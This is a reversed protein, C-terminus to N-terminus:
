ADRRRLVIAAGVLAVLVYGCLVGLSTWRGLMSPDRVIHITSGAIEGPLYRSIHSSWSQPLASVIIPIVLVIGVLSAIGGATSRLLAGLAVGLLAILTLFAGAAVVAAFAGPHSLTTGIHQSSLMAQGSLFAVLGTTTMLVATVGAFVAAKAWLVPLRRPVAALTSRIMGTAYEGSMVLVGLVGIALQAFYIGSLSVEVPDFFMREGSSMHDWRNANAWPILIGLGIEVIVAVLLAYLTSRVTRFKTWESLLVRGPTVRTVHPGRGRSSSRAPLASPTTVATM